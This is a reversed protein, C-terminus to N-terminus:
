VLSGGFFRYCMCLAVYRRNVDAGSFRHRLFCAGLVSFLAIVIFLFAIM